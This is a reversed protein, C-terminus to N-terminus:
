YIRLCAFCNINEVQRFGASLQGIGLGPIKGLGDRGDTQRPRQRWGSRGRMSPECALHLTGSISYFRARHLVACRRLFERGAPSKAEPWGRVAAQASQQAECQESSTGAYFSLNGPNLNGTVFVHKGALGEAGRARVFFQCPLNIERDVRGIRVVPDDRIQVFSRM